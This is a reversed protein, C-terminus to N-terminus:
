CYFQRFENPKIGTIKRFTKSFYKVDTYGVAESIKAITNNTTQLLEKAKNIRLETLSELFGNGSEKKYLASFYSPTLGVKEAVTELSIDYDSYHEQMYADALRVPRVSEKKRSDYYDQVFLVTEDTFRKKLSDLNQAICISKKLTDAEWALGGCFNEESLIAVRRGAALLVKEALRPSLDKLSQTFSATEEEVDADVRSFFLSTRRNWDDLFKQIEDEDHKTECSPLSSSYFVSKGSDYRLPLLKRLCEKAEYVSDKIETGFISFKLQPFIQMCDKLNEYLKKLSDEASNKGADLVFFFTGYIYSYVSVAFMRKLLELIKEQLLEQLDSSLFRETSDIKIVSLSMGRLDKFNEAGTNGDSKLLEAFELSSKKEETTEAIQQRNKEQIIKLLTQSLEEKNVPKLLYNKVGYTIATKAYDFQSFGSVIIFQSDPLKEHVEAILSLGDLGPMKIDSIIIDPKKEFILKRGDIGNRANGAYELSYEKWPILLELLKIIHDEDDIIVVSLSDEKM